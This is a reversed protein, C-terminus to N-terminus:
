HRERERPPHVIIGDCKLLAQATECAARLVRMKMTFGEIVRLQKMDAPNGTNVDLGRAFSNKQYTTRTNYLPVLASRFKVPDFGCNECLLEVFEFLAQSFVAPGESEVTKMEQSLKQLELALMVETSGGGYLVFVDKKIRKLVCLADHISRETEELVASSSGYIVITSAGKKAGTFRTFTKGKLLVREIKGCTGTISEGKEGYFHSTVKGGLIKNLKEVNGFDANEIVHKGHGLLLQMPFDYIIQRNIILDFEILCVRDIKEMMRQKEAEEVKELESISDVEIKSSFIKIKDFDLATNAVLVRPNTLETRDDAFHIEKDIVLGDVWISESLDGKLKVINILNLDIDGTLNDVSDMCIKVFKDLHSNLIKSNLTTRVLSEVDDRTAQVKKHQLIEEIKAIAHGLGRSIFAPRVKSEYAYKLILSAILVISTTGDGEEFDQTKSSEVLVRACASEIRLNKLVFAGDNTVAHEKGQLIKMNGKPGLTGKMVDLLVGTTSKIYRYAEDGYMEEANGPNATFLELRQNDM